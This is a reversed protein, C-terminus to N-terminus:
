GGFKAQGIVTGIKDIAKQWWKKKTPPQYKPKDIM